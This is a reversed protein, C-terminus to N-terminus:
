LNACSEPWTGPSRQYPLQPVAEIQPSYEWNELEPRAKRGVSAILCKDIDWGTPFVADTLRTAQTVPIACHLVKARRRDARSFVEQNIEWGPEAIYAWRERFEASQLDNNISDKQWPSTNRSASKNLARFFMGGPVM